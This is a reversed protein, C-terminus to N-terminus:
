SVLAQGILICGSVLLLCLVVRQFTQASVGVYARAGLWAGLLTPPLCLFAIWLLRPTIQGSISMGLSALTLVVANFPQYTARQADSGGGRLQLWILPLPGSLGAFGGLFGGGMGIMGDAAKGGWSGILRERRQILQYTAYTILFAGISTKLVFPSAGALAAVGLPVGIVGGILYPRAHSWDFATRVMILGVIQAAVSNLAVLPPVFAAPLAQLWLGSAVLGTGFGAFGTIFGAVLAAVMVLALLPFDLATGLM